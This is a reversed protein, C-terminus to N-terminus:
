FYFSLRLRLSYMKDNLEIPPDNGATTWHGKSYGGVLKIYLQEFAV